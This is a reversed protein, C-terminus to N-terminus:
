DTGNIGFRIPVVAPYSSRSTMEMVLFVDKDFFEM